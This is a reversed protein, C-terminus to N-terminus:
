GMKVFNSITTIGGSTMGVDYEKTVLL